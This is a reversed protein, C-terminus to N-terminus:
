RGRRGAAPAAPALDQALAERIPTLLTVARRYDQAALLSRAEQVATSASKLSARLKAALAPAPRPSAGSLRQEITAVHANVAVLLQEAESRAAAKEDAARRAAAYASERAEIAAGLAARYDGANVATDYGTLAAEAARLEEPAYTDAGAAKAAAIAGQAQEREKTPPESCAVAAALAIVAVILRRHM